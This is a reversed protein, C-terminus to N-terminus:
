SIKPLRDSVLSWVDFVAFKASPYRQAISVEYASRYRLAENVLVVQEQMRYSIQTINDPKNPWFKPHRSGGDAPLAYLPTLNLPIVNMLIFYRGGAAYLRDFAEYVCDIYDLITKGAVQSDTLFAGNGLDNTGIWITYVTEEVPVDLFPAGNETTINKDALFAPIEYGQVDPFPAQVSGLSTIRPTIANSCM